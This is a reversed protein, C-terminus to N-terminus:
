KASDQTTFTGNHVLYGDESISNVDAGSLYYPESETRGNTTRIKKTETNYVGSEATYLSTDRYIRVHGRLEVDRQPITNRTIPTFTRTALTFRWTTARQQWGTKMPRRAPPRSKLRCM